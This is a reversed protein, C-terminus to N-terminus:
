RLDDGGRVRCLHYSIGHERDKWIGWVLRCDEANLNSRDMEVGDAPKTTATFTCREADTWYVPDTPGCGGIEDDAVHM